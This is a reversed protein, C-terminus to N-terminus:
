AVPRADLGDTRRAELAHPTSKANLMDCTIAPASQSRALPAQRRRPCNPDSMRPTIIVSLTSQKWRSLHTMFFCAINTSFGSYSTQLKSTLAHQHVDAIEILDTRPQHTSRMNHTHKTSNPSLKEQVAKGTKTPAHLTINSKTSDRYQGNYM